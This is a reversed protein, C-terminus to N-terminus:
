NSKPKSEIKAKSEFDDSYLQIYKIASPNLSFMKKPECVMSFHDKWNLILDLSLEKVLM